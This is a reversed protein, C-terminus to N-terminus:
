CPQAPTAPARAPLCAALHVGCSRRVGLEVELHAAVHRAAYQGCPHVLVRMAALTQGSSQGAHQPKPPTILVNTLSQGGKPLAQIRCVTKPRRAHSLLV